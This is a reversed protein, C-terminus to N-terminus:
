MVRCLSMTERWFAPARRQVPDVAADDHTAAGGRARCRPRYVRCPFWTSGRSPVEEDHLSRGCDSASDRRDAVTAGFRIIVEERGSPPRSAHAERDRRRTRSRAAADPAAVPPLSAGRAFSRGRTTGFSGSVVAGAHRDADDRCWSVPL